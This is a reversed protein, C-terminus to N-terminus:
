FKPKYVDWHDHVWQSWEQVFVDKLAVDDDNKIYTEFRIVEYPDTITQKLHKIFDKFLQEETKNENLFENFKKIM